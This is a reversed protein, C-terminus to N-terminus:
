AGGKWLGLNILTTRIENVQAILAAVDTGSALGDSGAVYANLAVQAANARQVFPAEETLVVGVVSAADAGGRFDVYGMPTNGTATTTVVLNTADWWVRTGAPLAHTGDGTGVTKPAVIVGCVTLQGQVGAPISRFAFGVKNGVVVIDGANVNTSPAYDLVDSERQYLQSAFASPAIMGPTVVTPNGSM